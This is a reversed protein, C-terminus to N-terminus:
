RKELAVRLTRVPNLPDNSVVEVRLSHAGAELLALDIEGTAKGRKGPKLVSPYSLIKVGPMRSYIRNVHLDSRGDNSIAFEFRVHQGKAGVVGLDVLEPNLYARPGNDVEEASLGRTDPVVDATLIVETEEDCSACPRVTIPIEVYGPESLERSNLYVSVSLVDGPAVAKHAASVDLAPSASQFTPVITDASQNVARFFLHRATGYRLTGADIRSESLRLPGCEVPYDAELTEPKGLVTGRIVIVTIENELGTYVKVTKEFRGPRGAPNYTFSVKGTAGPAIEGETFSAGTCGCSTRVRNVVTAEPGENVFSVTGTQPGAEEHFVGFDYELTEWKLEARVGLACWAAIAIACFLRMAM